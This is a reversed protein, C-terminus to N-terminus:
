EESEDEDKCEHAERFLERMKVPEDPGDSHRWARFRHRKGAQPNPITKAQLINKRLNFAYGIVLRGSETRVLEGVQKFGRPVACNAPLILTQTHELGSVLGFPAPAVYM